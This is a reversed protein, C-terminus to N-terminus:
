SDPSISWTWFQDLLGIFSTLQDEARHSVVASLLLLTAGGPSSGFASGWFLPGRNNVTPM